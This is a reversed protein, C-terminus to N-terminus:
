SFDFMGHNNQYLDMLSLKDFSSYVKFTDLTEDYIKTNLDKTVVAISDIFVHQISLRSVSPSMHKVSETIKGALGPGWLKPLLLM